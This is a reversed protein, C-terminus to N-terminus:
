WRPAPRGLTCKILKAKVGYRNRLERTMAKGARWEPLVKGDTEADAMADWLKDFAKGSMKVSFTIEWPSAM